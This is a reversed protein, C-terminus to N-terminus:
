PPNVIPLLGTTWDPPVEPSVSGGGVLQVITPISFYQQHTFFLDVPILKNLAFIHLTTSVYKLFTHIYSWTGPSSRHELVAGILKSPTFPSVKALTPASLQTCM